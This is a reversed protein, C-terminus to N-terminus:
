LFNITVSVSVYLVSSIFQGQVSFFIKSDFNKLEYSKNVTKVIFVSSSM